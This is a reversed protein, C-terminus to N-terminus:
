IPNTDTVNSSSPLYKRVTKELPKGFYQDLAIEIIGSLSRREQKALENYALQKAKPVYTTIQGRRTDGILLYDSKM